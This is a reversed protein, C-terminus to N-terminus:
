VSAAHVRSQSPSAEDMAHRIAWVVYLNQGPFATLRRKRGTRLRASWFSIRGQLQRLAAWIDCWVVCLRRLLRRQAGARPESKGGPLRDACTPESGYVDCAALAQDFCGHDWPLDSRVDVVIWHAGRGYAHGATGLNASVGATGGRRDSPVVM